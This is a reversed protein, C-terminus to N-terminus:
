KIGKLQNNVEAKTSPELNISYNGTKSITISKKGFYIKNDKYSFGVLTAKKGIPLKSYPAKGGAFWYKNDSELGNIVVLDGDIILSLTCFDFNNQNKISASLDVNESKPDSYYRDCNVWGLKSISFSNKMTRQTMVKNRKNEVVKNRQDNRSLIDNIEKESYGKSSLIERARPSELNVEPFEVVTTLQENLYGKFSRILDYPIGDCNVCSDALAVINEWSLLYKLALSDCYRLEKDLNNLYINSITNDKVMRGSMVNDKKYSNYHGIIWEAQIIDQFRSEFELTAIFTNELDKNKFTTSDVIEDNYPAMYGDSLDRSDRIFGFSKWFDYDFLELPIPIMRNDTAGTESWNINGDSDYNGSFVSYPTGQNYNISPLEINLSSNKDLYIREKKHYADIHFMGASQIIEDDSVTQLNSKIFHAVNLVEILEITVTGSISNGESDVFSNKPIFIKTGNKGIITNEVDSQIQFKQSNPILKKFIVKSPTEPLSNRNDSIITKQDESCSSIVFICLTLLLSSFKM